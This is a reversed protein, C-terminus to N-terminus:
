QHQREIEYEQTTRFWINLDNIISALESIECNLRCSSEFHEETALLEQKEKIQKELELIRDPIKGRIEEWQHIISQQEERSLEEWEVHLVPLSIGLRKDYVFEVNM